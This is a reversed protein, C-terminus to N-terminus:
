GNRRLSSSITSNISTRSPLILCKTNNLSPNNSLIQLLILYRIFLFLPIVFLILRLKPFILILEYLEKVILFYQSKM